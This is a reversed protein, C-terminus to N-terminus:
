CEFSVPSRLPLRCHFFHRLFHNRSIWPYRGLMASGCSQNGSYLPEDHRLTWQACSAFKSDCGQCAKGLSDQEIPLRLVGSREPAILKFALRFCDGDYRLSVMDVAAVNSSLLIIMLANGQVHLSDRPLALSHEQTKTCYDPTHSRIAHVRSTREECLLQRTTRPAAASLPSTM